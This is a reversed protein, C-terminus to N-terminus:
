VLEPTSDFHRAHEILAYRDTMGAIFDAIRRARGREDLCDLSHAWDASMKEPHAFYHAFLDAVVRQAAEMIRLIRAHRYMRPLLFHKISRDVEAFPGSFAIMPAGAGRVDDVSRPAAAAFRRTSEAIVDDIMRAILRRILEHVRRAADLRPYRLDIDRLIDELAAVAALDELGFLGARLGDDLDHADYAIDDAIAAIQAEPGPYTAL